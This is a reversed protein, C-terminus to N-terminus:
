RALDEVKEVFYIDPIDSVGARQMTERLNDSQAFQRAKGLDDWEFVAIMENTNDAGRFLLGGLSGGAARTAVHEDFAAKWKAYDAVKHRVIMYAMETVEAYRESRALM